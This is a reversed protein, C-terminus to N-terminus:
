GYRIAEVPDIRAAQDAPYLTALFCIALASFAILVADVTELRVPLTTIYYVDGPLEVFRYKALLACLLFGLSGGTLTGVAGITMGKFIFIRRILGRSAGMAKLIGIDRQKKMVLMMLSSAINFAAVFIILTLIIFMVVKELKLASFLNRNMQMWDKVKYEKGLDAALGAGISGAQYIDAVRIEIGSVADGMRLLTQAEGLRIYALVGDFEHMGSEFIDAVVCRKMGPMHGVPTLMGRPSILYVTDGKSVRIIRALERGLVLGPVPRSEARPMRSSFITELSTEEFQATIRRLNEETVGKLVAGTMDTSSRLMIQTRVFPNASVVGKQQGLRKLVSDYESFEGDQRSLVIHSEIGLIRTKLDSEFGAMVAIVVILAMVGVMVGAISLLTILSIFAHRQKSRLYRRGIFM